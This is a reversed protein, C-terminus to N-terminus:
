VTHYSGYQYYCEYCFGYDDVGKEVILMAHFQLFTLAFLLHDHKVSYAKQASQWFATPKKM